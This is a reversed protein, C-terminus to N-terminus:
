DIYDCCIITYIEPPINPYRKVLDERDYGYLFDHLDPDANYIIEYEYM